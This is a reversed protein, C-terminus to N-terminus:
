RTFFLGDCKKGHSNDPRRVALVHVEGESDIHVPREHGMFLEIKPGAICGQDRLFSHLRMPRAAFRAALDDPTVDLAEPGLDALPPRELRGATESVWVGARRETGQESLMLARGDDFIWRALGGKPRGTQKPDPKLRGGQMLHVVFTLEGFDLLLYKGRRGVGRLAEGLAGEPAPVATKLAHFALPVFKSLEDGGFDKIEGDPMVARASVVNDKFWGAEYSGIGAGGQALWGGVTAAPYSSPYLRLTLGQRMLEKDLVEWVAGPEVTVTLKEKDINKVAQMRYFDVVIGGRTPIVGGYGSSAKGRPTVAVNELSARRLIDALEAENEPQVVADPVAAGILPKVLSPIAAIDHGYLKRELKEFNVRQGFKQELEIRLRESIGSM